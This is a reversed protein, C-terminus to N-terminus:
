REVVEATGPGIGPARIRGIAAKLREYFRRRAPIIVPLFWPHPPAPAPGQHGFEVLHAHRARARIRSSLGGADLEGVIQRQLTGGTRLAAAERSGDKKRSYAWARLSYSGVPAARKLRDVTETVVDELERRAEAQVDEGWHDLAVELDRMGVIELTIRDAV